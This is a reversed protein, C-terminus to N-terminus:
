GFIWSFLGHPKQAELAVRTQSSTQNNIVDAMLQQMQVQSGSQIQLRKTEEQAQKEAAVTGAISIDRGADIQAYGLGASLQAINFQSDSQLKAATLGAATVIRTKELDAAVDATHAAMSDQFQQWAVGTTVNDGSAVTDVSGGGAGAVMYAIVLGTIVVGGAIVPHAKAQEIIQM